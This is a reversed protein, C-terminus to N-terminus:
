PQNLERVLPEAAAMDAATGRLVLFSRGGYTLAFQAKTSSRIQGIVNALNQGAKAQSLDFLRVVDDAGPAQYQTTVLASGPQDVQNFFWEAMSLQSPTGRLVMTRADNYTFVRRIGAVSRIVTALEMFNQPTQANGVYFVQTAGEEKPDAIVKQPSVSHQAPSNIPRDMLPLLWEFLAAQDSTGRMLIAKAPNYTFVRRIEGVTRIATAIEMFQQPTQANTVHFIRLVNEDGSPLAYEAVGNAPGEQDLETFVWGAADLQGPTGTVTLTSPPNDTSVKGQIELVTRIATSIEQASRADATHAFHFVRQQATQAAAVSAILALLRLRM